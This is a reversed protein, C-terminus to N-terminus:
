PIRQARIRFFLNSTRNTYAGPPATIWNILDTSSELIINAGTGAPVILTKDPPFSEPPIELTVFASQFEGRPEGSTRLAIKAPGAIVVDGNGYLSIQFQHTGKTVLLYAGGPNLNTAKGDFSAKVEAVENTGITVENTLTNGGIVLTIFKAQLVPSNALFFAAVSLKLLTKKM